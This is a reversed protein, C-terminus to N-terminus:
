RLIKKGDSVIVGRYTKGVHQGALNYEKGHKRDSAVKNIGTAEFYAEIEADTWVHTIEVSFQKQLEVGDVKATITTEGLQRGFAMGNAVIIGDGEWVVTHTNGLMFQSEEGEYITATALQHHKFGEVNQNTKSLFSKLMPYTAVRSYDFRDGMATIAGETATMDERSLGTYNADLTFSQVAADADYFVTNVDVAGEVFDDGIVHCSYGVMDPCIVSGANYSNSLKEYGTDIVRGVLGGTQKKSWVTGYNACNQIRAAGGGVLGGANTFDYDESYDETGDDGPTKDVHIYGMNWCEDLLPSDEVTNGVIGGAFNSLTAPIQAYGAAVEGANWCRVFNGRSVSQSVTTWGCIGGAFVNDATVFGTNWCDTINGESLAVIGGAYNLHSIIRGTNGCAVVSSGSLESCIGAAYGMVQGRAHAVIEGHNVCNQFLTTSSGKSAIGAAYDNHSEIKGYNECDIIQGDMRSVLGSVYSVGVREDKFNHIHGYNKSGKIVVGPSRADGAFGGVYQESWVDASNSCGDIVAKNIMEGVLGGVFRNEAEVTVSETTHCNTLKGYLAGAFAGIYEFGRFYSDAITLDCVEGESGITAFLGKYQSASGSLSGLDMTIHSLTHGDGKLCGRFQKNGDAYLAVFDEGTFDIDATLKLFKGKFENGSVNTERVFANWDAVDGILYPEAETGEGQLKHSLLKRLPVIITSQGNTVTLTDICQRSTNPAYLKLGDISFGDAGGVKLSASQGHINAVTQMDGASEVDAFLVYCSRWDQNKSAFTKLAPYLGAQQSWYTTPLDVSGSTLQQATAEVVGEFSEAQWAGCYMRSADYYVKSASPCDSTCFSVVGGTEAANGCLVSGVNISNTITTGYISNYIEGFLGGIKSGQVGSVTGTNLCNDITAGCVYGSLGGAQALMPNSDPYLNLITVSGDNQCNILNSRFLYGVLGGVKCNGSTVSGANYCDKIVHDKATAGVLGGCYADVSKVSAYNECGILSCDLSYKLEGAFSGVYDNGVFECSKDIILNKIHGRLEGVLGIHNLQPQNIKLNKISHGQGDITGSFHPNTNATTLMGTAVGQFNSGTFDVDQTLAFYLGDCYEGAQVINNLQVFDNATLLKYPNSLSGDGEWGYNKAAPYTFPKGDTRVITSSTTMWEPNHDGPVSLAMDYCVAWADINWQSTTGTGGINRLTNIGSLKGDQYIPSYVSGYGYYFNYFVMHQEPQIILAKSHRRQVNLAGKGGFGFITSHEDDTDMIYTNYVHEAGTVDTTTMKSNPRFFYSAMMDFEMVWDWAEDEPFYTEAIWRGLSVTGDEYIHGKVGSTVDASDPDFYMEVQVPNNEGTAPNYEDVMTTLFLQHPFNLEGTAWNVEGTVTTGYGQLNYLSITNETPFSIQVGDQCAYYMMSNLSAEIHSGQVDQPSIMRAMAKDTLSRAAKLGSMQHHRFTGGMQNGKIQQASASSLGALLLFATMAVILRKMM